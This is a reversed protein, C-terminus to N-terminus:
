EEMVKEFWERLTTGADDSDQMFFAMWEPIGQQCDLVNFSAFELVKLASLNTHRLLEVLEDIGVLLVTDKNEGVNIIKGIPM